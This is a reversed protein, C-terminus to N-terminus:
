PCPCQAIIAESAQWTGLLFSFLRDNSAKSSNALEQFQFQNHKGKSKTSEELNPNDVSHVLSLAIQQALRLSIDKSLLVGDGVAAVHHLLEMAKQNQKDASYV